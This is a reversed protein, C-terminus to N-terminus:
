PQRLLRHWAQQAQPYHRLATAIANLRETRHSHACIQRWATSEQLLNNRINEVFCSVSHEVAADQAFWWGNRWLAEFQQLREATEDRQQLYRQRLREETEKLLSDLAAGSLTEITKGSQTLQEITFLAVDGYFQREFETTFDVQQPNDHLEVGPRHEAGKHRNLTRKHVMPLNASLFREGWQQQLLRGLLPGAMRLKLAAFPIFADLGQPTFLYNATYVTRAPKITQQLPQQLHYSRRTPHVGHFFHNLRESFRQLCANHDHDGPQDCRYRYPSDPLPYGFLDTMDHYAAEGERQALPHHFQCPNDARQQNLTVLFHNLDLLLNGAMVTPSVPPDGVLKGTLMIPEHQQFIRDFLYLYNICYLEQERSGDSINVRFEQDSDVFWFLLRGRDGWQRQLSHLKLYALNRTTSAGKHEQESEPLAILQQLTDHQEASLQKLLAQQQRNGFYISEIRHESGFRRTLTEIAKRNESDTSDDSILLTLKQYHGSRNRGYHFRECLQYLSQLCRELQQPRDAVPITIVFHHREDVPQAAIWQEQERYLQQLQQVREAETPAEELAAEAHDLALQYRTSLPNKGAPDATTDVALRHTEIYHQLVRTSPPM